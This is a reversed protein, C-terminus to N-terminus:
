VAPVYDNSKISIYFILCFVIVESLTFGVTAEKIHSEAVNEAFKLYKFFSM